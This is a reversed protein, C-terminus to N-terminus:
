TSASWRTSTTSCCRPSRRASSPKASAPRAASFSRASRGTPIKCAAAAAASPTPSPTSRKTRASSASTCGSKSCSCSPGNPKWCAASRSAPGRASSKPSKTPASKRASCADATPAAPERQRRRAALRKSPRPRKSNSKCNDQARQRARVAEPLDAKTSRSHRRSSSRSRRTWSSTVRTRRRRAEPPRQPVDGVGLKEAEWQERLSALKGNSSTGDRDEIEACGSRPTSKPKKPWAAPRGARAADAPAAGRRDRSPVSELEMALRSAAEDM